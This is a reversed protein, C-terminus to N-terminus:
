WNLVSTAQATISSHVQPPVIAVVDYGRLRLISIGYAFDRDGSILVITAPAPRDIAYALMDVLIMKDAVDKKGNHPCYALTVGSSQLESHFITSRPNSSELPVDLYAKFLSVNGFSQVARRVKNVLEYGSTNGAPRCNEYDWFIAVATM